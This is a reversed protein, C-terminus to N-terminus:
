LNMLYYYLPGPSYQRYRFNITHHNKWNVCSLTTSIFLINIMATIQKMMSLTRILQDQAWPSCVEWGEAVEVPCVVM